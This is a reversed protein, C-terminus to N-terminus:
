PQKVWVMHHAEHRLHGTPEGKLRNNKDAYWEDPYRGSTAAIGPYYRGFVVDIDARTCAAAAYEREFSSRHEASNQM